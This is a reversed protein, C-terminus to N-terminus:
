RTTFSRGTQRIHFTNCDSCMLKFVGTKNYVIIKHSNNNHNLHKKHQKNQM